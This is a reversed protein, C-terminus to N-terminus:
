YPMYKTPIAKVEEPTLRVLTKPILHESIGSFNTAQLDLDIPLCISSTRSVTTLHTNPYQLIASPQSLDVRYVDNVRVALYLVSPSPAKWGHWEWSFFCTSPKAPAPDALTATATLSLAISAVTFLTRSFV